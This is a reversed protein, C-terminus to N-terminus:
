QWKRKRIIVILFFFLFDEGRLPISGRDGAHCALISVVISGLIQSLYQKLHRFNGGHPLKWCETIVTLIGKIECYECIYVLGSTARFFALGSTSVHELISQIVLDFEM